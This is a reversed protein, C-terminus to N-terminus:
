RDVVVRIRATDGRASVARIEHTGPTLSWRDAPHPKGDVMWRVQDAGVGRARLAVSAYHSEVGVPISYRDGDLPSVIRFQSRSATVSDPESTGARVATATM